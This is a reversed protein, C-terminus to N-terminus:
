QIIGKTKLYALCRQLPPACIPNWHPYQLESCLETLAEEYRSLWGSPETKYAHAEFSTCANLDEPYNPAHQYFCSERSGTGDLPHHLRQEELYLMWGGSEWKEARFGMAEAVKIRIEETMAQNRSRNHHHM